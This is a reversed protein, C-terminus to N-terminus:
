KIEDGRRFVPYSTLLVGDTQTTKSEYSGSPTKVKHYCTLRYYYNTALGHVDFETYAYTIKGDPYDAGNFTKTFTDVKSWTGSDSSKKRYLNITIQGWEVGAHSTFDAYIRLVGEGENTVQSSAAALYLSRPQITTDKNESVNLDTRPIENAFVNNGGILMMVAVLSIIRVIKKRM